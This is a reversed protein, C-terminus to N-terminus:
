EIEHLDTDTMTPIGARKWPVEGVLDTMGSLNNRRIRNKLMSDLMLVSRCNSITQRPIGGENKQLLERIEKVSFVAPDDAKVEEGM